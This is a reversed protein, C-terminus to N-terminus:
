FNANGTQTFCDGKGQKTTLLTVVKLQISVDYLDNQEM